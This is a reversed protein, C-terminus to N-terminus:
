EVAVSVIVVVGASIVGVAVVATESVTVIVIVDTGADVALWTGSCLTWCRLEAINPVRSWSGDELAAAGATVGATLLGADAITVEVVVLVVAAEVVLV